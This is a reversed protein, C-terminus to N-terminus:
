CTLSSNLPNLSNNYQTLNYTPVHRICIIEFIYYEYMNCSINNNPVRTYILLIQM